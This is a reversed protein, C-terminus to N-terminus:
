NGFMNSLDALESRVVSIRRTLYEMSARDVTTYSNVYEMTLERFQNSLIKRREIKIQRSTDDCVLSKLQESIAKLNM